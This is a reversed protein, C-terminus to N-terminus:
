ARLCSSTETYHKGAKEEAKLSRYNSEMYLIGIDDENNKRKILGALRKVKENAM